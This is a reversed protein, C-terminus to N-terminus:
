HDEFDQLLKEVEDPHLEELAKYYGRSHRLLGIAKEPTAYEPYNLRLYRLVTLIDEETPRYESEDMAAMM